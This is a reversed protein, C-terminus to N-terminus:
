RVIKLDPLAAQLKEVGQDTVNPCFTIVLEQLNSLGSLAELGADGVKTKGLHLWNLNELGALHMVGEDTM